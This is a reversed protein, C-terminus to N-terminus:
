KGKRRSSVIDDLITELRIIVTRIEDVNGLELMSSVNGGIDKYVIAGNEKKEVRVSM